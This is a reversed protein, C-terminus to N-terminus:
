FGLKHKLWDLGFLGLLTGVAAFARLRTSEDELKRVRGNQLTVQTEIRQVIRYIEGLTVDQQQDM